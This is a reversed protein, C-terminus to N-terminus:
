IYIQKMNVRSFKRSIKDINKYLTELPQNPKWIWYTVNIEALLHLDNTPTGDANYYHYRRDEVEMNVLKVEKTIDNIIIVDVFNDYTYERRYNYCSFFCVYTIGENDYCLLDINDIYPYYPNRNTSMHEYKLNHKNVFWLNIFIPYLHSINESLVFNLRKKTAHQIMLEYYCKEKVLRINHIHDYYLCLENIYQKAYKTVYYYGFYLKFLGKWIISNRLQGNIYKNTIYLNSVSAYDLFSIIEQFLDSSVSQMNKIRILKTHKTM